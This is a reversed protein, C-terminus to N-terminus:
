KFNISNVKRYDNVKASVTSPLKGNKSKPKFSTSMISNTSTNASTNNLEIM